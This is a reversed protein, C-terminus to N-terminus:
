GPLAEIWSAILGAIADSNDELMMMHGNGTIGLDALHWYDVGAGCGKLWGAIDGDHARSHDRDETGTVIVVPKGNLTGTDDVRLQTGDINLREQMLRPPLPQLSATYGALAHRPFRTSEGVLKEAAFAANPYWPEHRPVRTTIEGRRVLLSNDDSDILEAVPQINGPPGPAVAVLASIQAASMELLRWGFPGSISHTLLVVPQALEGIFAALTQCVTDGTLQDLPVAGSRGTGPWDVVLVTFGCRAFYDAWGPRGDASHLYCSGNHSGGHLLVLIPKGTPAVPQLRDYYIAPHTSSFASFRRIERRDLRPTMAEPPQLAM